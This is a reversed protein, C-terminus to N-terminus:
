QDRELEAILADAAVVRLEAMRQAQRGLTPGKGNGLNRERVKDLLGPFTQDIDINTAIYARLSMGHIQEQSRSHPYPFAPGGDSKKRVIGMRDAWASRTNLKINRSLAETQQVGESLGMCCPCHRALVCGFRDAGLVTSNGVVM